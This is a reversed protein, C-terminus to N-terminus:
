MAAAVSASTRAVAPQADRTGRRDGATAIILRAAEGASAAAADSLQGRASVWDGAVFVNDFAHIRPLPRGTTGGRAATLESNTVVLNPLFQKFEIRDRWGPQMMDM